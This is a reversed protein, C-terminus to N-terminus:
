FDLEQLVQAFVQYDSKLGVSVRIFHDLPPLGPKRIFVGKLRLKLVIDEARPKTGADGLVFNTHSEPTAFGADNLIQSLERRAEATRQRITPVFSRDRLSALAGAQAICNVEFHPRIRNLPQLTEPDGMAYSVRAGAMGYIKSFTRLRLLRPDAIEFPEVFEVYAEDLIVLVDEPLANLFAQIATQPHFTGSPNDPNAVYVARANNGKVADALGSLDVSLNKYPVQILKAGVADIFYDFTPYSGLTTVVRDGPELYASAIHGFLGDIGPGVVFNEIAVGHVRALETRLDFSLPDGYWQPQQAAKAMAEVAMPSPGFVSENAGLRAKFKFGLQRELEEPAVFPITDSLKAVIRNPVPRPM